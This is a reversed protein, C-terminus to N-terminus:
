FPRTPPESIFHYRSQNAIPRNQTPYIYRNWLNISRLWMSRSSLNSGKKVLLNAEEDKYDPVGPTCNLAIEASILFMQCDTLNKKNMGPWQNATSHNVTSEVALFFGHFQIMMRWPHFYLFAMFLLFKRFASSWKIPKANLKTQNNKRKTWAWWSKSGEHGDRHRMAVVSSLPLRPHSSRLFPHLQHPSPM